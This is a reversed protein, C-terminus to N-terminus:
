PLVLQVEHWAFGVNFDENVSSAVVHLSIGATPPIIIRGEIPVSGQGGGLIGTAEVDHQDGYPFWGDDGVTAGIDLRANGGYNAKGRTSKIATIDATVAAMGVPHICAWIGWRSAAAASVLQQAFIRDIIYSLGGGAEGNWLTFLATTSPRAILAAVASTTMAQYGSGLRTLEAYPPLSQAIELDGRSNAQSEISEGVGDRNNAQLIYAEISM